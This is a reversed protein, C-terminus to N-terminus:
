KHSGPKYEEDFQMLEQFKTEIKRVNLDKQM